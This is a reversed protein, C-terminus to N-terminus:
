ARRSRQGADLRLTAGNFFTNEILHVVFTAFEAPEGMRRPFENLAELRARHEPDIRATLGTRFLGPVVDCVRIGLQALERSLPLTLSSVAAKAATYATLGPPGEFAATSSVNIIVGREGTQPDPSNKAMERAALRSVNFTGFLNTNIVVRFARLLAEADDSLLPTPCAFGACNVCIHLSGFRAMAQELAAASSVEDAVDATLALTLNTDHLFDPRKAKDRGIIAVSAGASILRRAVAEGLGSTGGTVLAVKGHLEM